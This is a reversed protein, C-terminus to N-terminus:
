ENAYPAGALLTICHSALGVSRRTESRTFHSLASASVGASLIAPPAAEYETDFREATISRQCACLRSYHRGGASRGISVVYHIRSRVRALLVSVRDALEFSVSVSSQTESLSATGQM